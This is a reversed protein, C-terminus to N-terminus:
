SHGRELQRKPNQVLAVVGSGLAWVWVIGHLPLLIGAAFGFTALGLLWIAAILGLQIAGSRWKGMLLTGLGPVVVNVVMGAIILTRKM